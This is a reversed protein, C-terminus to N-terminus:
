SNVPFVMSSAIMSAAVERPTAEVSRSVSTTNLPLMPNRPIPALGATILALGLFASESSSIRPSVDAARESFGAFVAGLASVAAGFASFGAFFSTSFGALFSAFSSASGTTISSDIMSSVFSYRFFSKLAISSSASIVTSSSLSVLVSLISTSPGSIPIMM